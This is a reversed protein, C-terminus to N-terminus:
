RGADMIGIRDSLMLAERQDHTVNVISVDLDRHLRLLEIQMDERLRRDLAGLPEDLLLLPPEYVLARALAIRQRQGGSLERVGRKEVHPLRVIELAERVRRAIEARGVRRMRLPF